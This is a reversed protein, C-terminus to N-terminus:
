ETSLPSGQSVSQTKRRRLFALLFDKVPKIIRFSRRDKLREYSPIFVLLQNTAQTNALKGGFM